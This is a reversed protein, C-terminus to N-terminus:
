SKRPEDRAVQVAMDASTTITVTEKNDSPDGNGANFILIEGAIMTAAIIGGISVTGGAICRVRFTAFKPVEISGATLLKEEWVAGADLHRQAQSANNGAKM